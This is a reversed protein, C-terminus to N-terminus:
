QDSIFVTWTEPIPICEPCHFPFPPKKIVTEYQLLQRKHIRCTKSSFDYFGLGQKRLPEGITLIPSNTDSGTITRRLPATPPSSTENGSGLSIEPDTERREKLNERTETSKSRSPTSQKVRKPM